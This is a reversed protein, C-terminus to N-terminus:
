DAVFIELCGQHKACDAHSSNSCATYNERRSAAATACRNRCVTLDAPSICNDAAASDCASQCVRINFEDTISADLGPVGGEQAGAPNCSTPISACPTYQICQLDLVGLARKCDSLCPDTKAPELLHCTYILRACTDVCTLQAATDPGADVAADGANGLNLTSDCAAVILAFACVLSVFTLPARAM